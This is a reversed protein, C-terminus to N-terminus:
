ELEGKLLSEIDAMVKLLPRVENEDKISLKLFYEIDGCLTSYVIHTHVILMFLMVRLENTPMNKALLKDIASIIPKSLLKEWTELSIDNFLITKQDTM